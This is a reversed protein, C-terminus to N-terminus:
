KVFKSVGKIESKVKRYGNLRVTACQDRYDPHQRSVYISAEIYQFQNIDLYNAGCLDSVFWRGNEDNNKYLIGTV